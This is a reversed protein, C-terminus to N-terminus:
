LGSLTKSAIDIELQRINDEKEKIIKDKAEM